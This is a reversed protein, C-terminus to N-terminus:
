SQLKVPMILHLYEKDKIDRFVGPSNTNTLEMQVEDGVLVGVLEEIFKYNFIIDLGEGEVKAEVEGEQKGSKQSEAAVKLKDKAVSIRIMNANDRAFVSALKVVRLFESKDVFVKTKTDKPIINEFDPYNGSIIRSSLVTDGVEFVIQNDKTNIEFKIEDGLETSRLLEVVTSKPLIVRDLGTDTKLDIIKQSLRFGDTAVLYLSGKKFLFLVGNLVPRTEDVSSSFVVKSLATSLDKFPLSFNNKGIKEIIKPFDTTNMGSVVGDFSDTKIKLQEKVAELTVQGKPLNSVIEAIVKGPVAIEGETEVQAGIEKSISLELNTALITLKTKSAKFVINGLIPLQVRPNVFRQVQNVAKSLDEQLVRIKM